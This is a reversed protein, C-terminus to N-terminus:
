YWLSESIEHQQKLMLEIAKERTTARGHVYNDHFRDSFPDDVDSDGSTGLIAVAMRAEYIGDAGKRMWVADGAVGLFYATGAMQYQVHESDPIPTKDCLEKVVTRIREWRPQGGDIFSTM